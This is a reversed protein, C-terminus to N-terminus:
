PLGLLRAAKPGLYTIMSHEGAGTRWAGAALVQGLLVEWPKTVGLAMLVINRIEKIKLTRRGDLGDLFARVEAAQPHNPLAALWRELTAAIQAATVGCSVFVDDTVLLNEMAYCNLRARRVVTLDDIEATPADDLDRLSYAIPQDYVVPLFTELWQEWRGMETVTGVVCPTLRIAGNSSRVVQDIVRKDDDGEVLVVPAQNFVTSLPHAGFIPLLEDSVKERAFGTFDTQTRSAVPVVQLDAGASFGSLIATSHTAIVVKMDRDVAVAEILQVFRVQLDPHLHVDPEDLLLMKSTSESHSFVLLEIAQAIFEAEGSSIAGEDINAGAKNKIAFGRDSRVLTIAPLYANLKDIVRDFTHTLDRRKTQDKEIERLYLIELNRFQVASQQRFNESRNKRRVNTLWNANNIITQDINAEYKLEGGREPTIYRTNLNEQEDLSRLLTSKGAGNKGLLVTFRKQAVLPIIQM